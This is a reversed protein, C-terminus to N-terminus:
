RRRRRSAPAPVVKRHPARARHPVDKAPSLAEAPAEHAAEVNVLLVPLGRAPVRFGHRLRGPLYFSDGAETVREGEDFTIAGTGSLVLGLEPFDHEHLDFRTGPEIQYLQLVVGEAGILRRVRV